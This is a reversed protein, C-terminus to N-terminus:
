DEAPKEAPEDEEILDEYRKDITRTKYDPMQYVWLATRERLLAVEEEVTEKADEEASPEDASEVDDDEIAVIDPDFSFDFRAWVNEEYDFEELKIVLGDFTQLELTKRPELNTVSSAGAVNKFDLNLMIAGISSVTSKSKVKFGDPVNELDFFSKNANEKEIRISEGDPYTISVRKVRDTDINAIETDVWSLPDTSIKLDGSVLWSQVDGSKRVYHQAQGSADSKRGVILSAISEGADNHLEILQGAADDSEIDAVGIRKYSEPLSTKAEIVNLDAIQLISRKINTFAAPYGDRNELKWADGDRKLMSEEKASRIIVRGIDNLQDILGPYLSARIVETQPARDESIKWALGIILLTLLALGLLKANM